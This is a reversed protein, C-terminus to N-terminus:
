TAMSGEAGIARKLEGTRRAYEVQSELLKERVMVLQRQAQILEQFTGKGVEYNAQAAELNQRAAPLLKNAYLELVQQSERIREIASQVDYQVDLLRQQYEARRQRVRFQAECVAANLKRRYVPLNLSVGVQGRLDGQTNSPQWFTDYRGFVDMDPHYQKWALNLAAEEVEVRHCLAALDPRQQLATQQLREADTTLPLSSLAPEPKPLPLEPSRILLTNLRALATRQMRQLELNRREFEAVELDAQLVDQQTVQNTQYKTHATERFEEVLRRNEANLSRQRDALYYDLFANTAILNLQLRIDGVDHGAAAAEESAMQGKAARKGFGPIKQNFQLAYAGEAVSSSSLSKPATMMMFMPDDLSVVQPYRQAAAQWAALMAQVSPHKARVEAVFEELSLVEEHQAVAAESDAPLTERSRIQHYAVAQFAPPPWAVSAQAARVAPEQVPAVSASRATPPRHAQQKPATHCGLLLALGGVGLRFSRLRLM